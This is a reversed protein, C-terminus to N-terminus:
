SFSLLSEFSGLRAPSRCGEMEAPVLALGLISLHWSYHSVVEGQSDILVSADRRSTEEPLHGVPNARLHM